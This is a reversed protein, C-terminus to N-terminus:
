EYSIVSQEKFSRWGSNEVDWVTVLGQAKPASENKPRSEAPVVDMKQTCKMVRVTGDIKTFKVTVIDEQLLKKLENMTM